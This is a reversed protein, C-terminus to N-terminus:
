VDDVAQEVNRMELWDIFSAECRECLEWNNETQTSAKSAASDTTPGWAVHKAPAGEEFDGCRDCQFAQAM